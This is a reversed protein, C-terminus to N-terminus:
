ANRGKGDLFDLFKRADTTIQAATPKVDFHEAKISAAAMAHDLAVKRAAYERDPIGIM